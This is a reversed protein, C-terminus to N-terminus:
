SGRHEIKRRALRDKRAARLKHWVLPHLEEARLSADLDLYREVRRRVPSRSNKTSLPLSTNPPPM